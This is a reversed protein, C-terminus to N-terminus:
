GKEGEGWVVLELQMAVKERPGKRGEGYAAWGGTGGRGALVAAVLTLALELTEGTRENLRPAGRELRKM